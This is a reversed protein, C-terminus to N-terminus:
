KLKKVYTLVFAGEAASEVTFEVEDGVKLKSASPTVSKQIPFSMTMPGMEVTKSRIEGHKLTIFNNKLDIAQVEGIAKPFLQGGIRGCESNKKANREETACHNTPAQKGTQANAPLVVGLVTSLFMVQLSLKKM